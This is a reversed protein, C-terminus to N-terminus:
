MLIWTRRCRLVRGISGWNGSLIGFSGLKEDTAGQGEEGISPTDQWEGDTIDKKNQATLQPQLLVDHGMEDGPLDGTFGSAVSHADSPMSRADDSDGDGRLQAAGDRSCRYDMARADMKTLLAM